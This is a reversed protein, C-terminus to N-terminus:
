SSEASLGSFVQKKLETLHQRDRVGRIEDRIKRNIERISTVSTVEGYINRESM